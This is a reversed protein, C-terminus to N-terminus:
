LESDADRSIGTGNRDEGAVAAIRRGGTKQESESDNTKQMAEARWKIWERRWGSQKEAEAKIKEINIRDFHCPTKNFSESLLASLKKDWDEFIDMVWKSIQTVQEM